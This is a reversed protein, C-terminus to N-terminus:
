HNFTNDKSTRLFAKLEELEISQKNARAKEEEYLTQFHMIRQYANYKEEVEQALSQKLVAIEELKPKM